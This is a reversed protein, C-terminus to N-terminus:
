PQVPTQQSDIWRVLAVRDLDSMYAAPPMRRAPDTTTLRDRLRAFTDGRAVPAGNVVDPFAFTGDPAKVWRSLDLGSVHGATHCTVCSRDLISSVACPPADARPAGSAFDYCETSVLAPEAFTRSLLIKAITEQFATGPSEKERQTFDQALQALYAPDVVQGEGVFYSWMRRVMCSKVEPAENIISFLDELEIGYSNRSTDTASRIYGVNWTREGTTDLWSNRYKAQEDPSFFTRDDFLFGKAIGTEGATKFGLSPDPPSYVGYAGWDKFFGAMPDLKYHCSQCQPDSAHRDADTAHQKPDVAVGVPTLDDCFYRSLVYAARKRNYNTSSLPAATFFGDATLAVDDYEKGFGLAPADITRFETVSKPAYKGDALTELFDLLDVIHGRMEQVHATLEATDKTAWCGEREFMPSFSAAIFLQGTYPICNGLFTNIDDFDKGFLGNCIEEKSAPPSKQLGAISKDIEGLIQTRVADRIDASPVTPDSTCASADLPEVYRPQRYRMLAGFYDGGGLAARTAEIVAPHYALANTLVGDDSRLGNMKFGLFYFSFDIVTDEFDPTAMFQRVVADRPMRRLDEIADGPGIGRGGRLVKATKDLWWDQKWSADPDPADNATASACGLFVLCLSAVRRISSM